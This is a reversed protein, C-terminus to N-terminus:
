FGLRLGLTGYTIADDAAHDAFRNYTEAGGGFATGFEGVIRLYPFSMSASVFANTRNVTQRLALPEPLSQRSGAPDLVVAGAGTADYRDQGIGAVIGLSIFHKAVVVRWSDVDVQMGNVRLTDSRDTRVIVDSTPVGRRMYTVAVGPSGSAEQLVGLRVGYGLRASGSSPEVRGGDPSFTPLFSMGALLDVGFMNTLQTPIGPFVAFSLDVSPSGAFQRSTAVDSQVAGAPDFTKARIDPTRVRFAPARVSLAIRGFKGLNGGEGVIANGGAVLVGLQPVMYVFM